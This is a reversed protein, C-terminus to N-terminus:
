LKVQNMLELEAKFYVKKHSKKRKFISKQSIIWCRKWGIMAPITAMKKFILIVANFRSSDEDARVCKYEKKKWNRIFIFDEKTLFFSDVPYKKKIHHRGDFGKWNM